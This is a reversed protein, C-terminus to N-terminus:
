GRRRVLLVRFRAVRRKRRRRAAVTRWEFAGADGLSLLGDHAGVEQECHGGNWGDM